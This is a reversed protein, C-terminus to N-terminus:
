LVRMVEYGVKRITPSGRKTIWRKSRAFQGSEYPPPDM